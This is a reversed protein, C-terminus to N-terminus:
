QLVNNISYPSNKILFYSTSIITSKSCKTNWTYTVWAVFRFIFKYFLMLIFRYKMNHLNLFTKNIDRNEFIVFHIVKVFIGKKFFNKQVIIWVFAMKLYNGLIVLCVIVQCLAEALVANMQVNQLVNNIKKPHLFYYCYYIECVSFSFM